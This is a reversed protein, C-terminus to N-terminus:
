NRESRSYPLIASTQMKERWYCAFRLMLGFALFLFGLVYNLDLESLNPPDHIVSQTYLAHKLIEISARNIGGFMVPIRSIKSFFFLFGGGRFVQDM